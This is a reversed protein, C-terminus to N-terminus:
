SRSGPEPAEGKESGSRARDDGPRGADRSRGRARPGEGRGDARAPRREGRSRGREPVLDSAGEARWIPEGIARFRAISVAGRSRRGSGETERLAAELAERTAQLICRPEFRADLIVLLTVDWPDQMRLEGIRHGRLAGTLLARGKIQYRVLRAAEGEAGAAGRIAAGDGPLVHALSGLPPGLADFGAGEPAPELGLIRRADHSAIEGTLALPKGTAERFEVALRRAQEVLRDMRYPAAPLAPAGRDADRNGGAPATAGLTTELRHARRAM